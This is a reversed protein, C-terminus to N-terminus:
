RHLPISNIRTVPKMGPWQGLGQFLGGCHLGSEIDLLMVGRAGGSGSNVVFLKQIYLAIIGLKDIDISYLM